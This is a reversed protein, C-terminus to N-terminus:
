RLILLLALFVWLLLLAIGEDLPKERAAPRRAWAAVWPAPARPRPRRLNVSRARPIATADASGGAPGPRWPARGSHGESAKRSELRAPATRFLDFPSNQAIHVRLAQRFNATTKESSQHSVRSALRGRQGNSHSGGGGLGRAQEFPLSAVPVRASSANAPQATSVVSAESLEVCSGPKATKALNRQQGRLDRSKGCLRAGRAGAMSCCPFDLQACIIWGTVFWVRACLFFAGARSSSGSRSNSSSAEPESSSSPEHSSSPEYSSEPPASVVAESFGLCVRHTARPASVRVGAWFSLGVGVGLTASM